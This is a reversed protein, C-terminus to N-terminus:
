KSGQEGHHVGDELWKMQREAIQEIRAERALAAEALTILKNNQDIITQEFSAADRSVIKNSSLAHVLSLVAAGLVATAGWEVVQSGSVDGAQALVKAAFALGFTKTAALLFGTEIMRHM